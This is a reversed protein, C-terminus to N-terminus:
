NEFSKYCTIWSFEQKYSQYKWRTPLSELTFPGKLEKELTELRKAMEECLLTLEHSNKSSLHMLDLLEGTEYKKFNEHKSLRIKKENLLIPNLPDLNLFFRLDQHSLHNILLDLAFPHSLLKELIFTTQM